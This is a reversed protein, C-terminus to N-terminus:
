FFSVQKPKQIYDIEELMEIARKIYWEYNINQPLEKPLDMCPVAGKSEPVCNNNKIYNITGHENQGYYWRVVKGLYESNKHAGGTVNKV